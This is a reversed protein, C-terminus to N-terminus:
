RALGPVNPVALDILTSSQDLTSKAIKAAQGIAQQDTTSGDLGSILEALLREELESILFPLSAANYRDVYDAQHPLVSKVLTLLANPEKLSKNGTGFRLAAFQVMILGLTGNLATYAKWAQSTLFPRESEPSKPLNELVAGSAKLLGEAFQRVSEGETGTIAATNLAVEMNIRESFRALMKVPGYQVVASWVRETAELRRRDLSTHRNGMVFLGANRISSIEDEKRKLDARLAEEGRRLDSKATEIKQDFEHRISEKIRAPLVEKLLLYEVASPILSLLGNVYDM